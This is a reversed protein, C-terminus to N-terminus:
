GVTVPVLTMRDNGFLDIVKVAVSYRGPRDYIHVASRLELDRSKGNWVLDVERKDEFLLFRRKEPLPRGAQILGILDRKGSDPLDSASAKAMTM